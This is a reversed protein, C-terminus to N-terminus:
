NKALVFIESATKANILTQEAVTKRYSQEIWRIEYKPAYGKVLDVTNGRTRTACIIIHCGEKVFIELSEALRSNPDGQTEIGIRLGGYIILARIDVGDKLRQVNAQPTHEFAEIVLKLTSTKGSGGRGYLAIIQKEM